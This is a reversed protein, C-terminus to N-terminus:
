VDVVVQIMWTKGEKSKKEEVIMESYTPAKVDGSTPYNDARDGKCVASLKNDKIEVKIDHLLFSESDKLIVLQDLFDFLLSKLDESKDYNVNIKRAIKPKVDEPASMIAFMARAANEFAEELTKGYARFKAESTHDLFEYQKM